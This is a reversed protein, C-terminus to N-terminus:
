PLGKSARCLEATACLGGPPVPDFVRLTMAAPPASAAAGILLGGLWIGATLAAASSLGGLAWGAWFSRAARRRSPAARLRHELRAALDFGLTPSPLERLVQRTADLEALRERCLPCHPLHGSLRGSERPALMDDLYASLDDHRPCTM